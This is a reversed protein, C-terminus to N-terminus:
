TSESVLSFSFFLTQGLAGLAERVALYEYYYHKTREKRRWSERKREEESIMSELSQGRFNKFRLVIYLRHLPQLLYLFLSVVEGDDRYGNM